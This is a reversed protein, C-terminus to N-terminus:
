LTTSLVCHFLIICLTRIISSIYIYIITNMVYSYMFTQINNIYIYLHINLTYICNPIIYTDTFSALGGRGRGGWRLSYLPEGGGGGLYYLPEGGGRWAWRLSYLPEGGGGGGRWGWRLSYLPEGGGGLYYLPEGGGGLYYLPEGGGEGGGWISFLPQGGGGRGGELLNRPEGGGLSLPARSRKEEDMRRWFGVLHERRRRRRRRRGCLASLAVCGGQLGWCPEIVVTDVVSLAGVTGPPDCLVCVGLNQALRQAVSNGSLSNLTRCFADAREGLGDRLWPLERDSVKLVGGSNKYSLALNPVDLTVVPLM